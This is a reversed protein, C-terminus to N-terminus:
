PIQLHNKGGDLALQPAKSNSVGWRPHTVPKIRKVHILVKADESGLQYRSPFVVRLPRKGWTRM